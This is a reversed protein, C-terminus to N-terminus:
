YNIEVLQLGRAKAKPSLKSDQQCNLAKDIDSLAIKGKGVEFLAGVIYRIMHRLFGNGEIEFYYIPQGFESLNTENLELRLVNRLTSKVSNDNVSFSYFDHEGVFLKGAQEINKLTIATEGQCETKLSISAVIDNLLPSSPDTLSFYYRYIKSTSQTNPNFGSSCQQCTVIRIDDALLSNMGLLLKDAAIEIPISLKAVQGLAHVGADTRSAGSVV